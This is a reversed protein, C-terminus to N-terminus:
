PELVVADGERITGGGLVRAYVRSVPGRLHHMREFEGHRFWRANSECPLAFVTVEALVDDGLALRVGSRVDAWDLGAITVNEGAAGPAIPHGEVRLLDIVEVSWLCLAQWARGHHRRHAQGDGVIGRVGVEVQEVRQKPVGGPSTSLQAVRGEARAPLTGADRLHAATAHLEILLRAVPRAAAALHEPPRRALRARAIQGLAAVDHGADAADVGALGALISALRLETTDLGPAARRETVQQWWPGVAGVTGLLDDRTYSDGLIEIV